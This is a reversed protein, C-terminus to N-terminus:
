VKIPVLARKFPGLNLWLGGGATDESTNWTPAMLKKDLLDTPNLLTIPLREGTLDNLIDAKQLTITQGLASM